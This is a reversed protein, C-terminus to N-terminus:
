EVRIGAAQIVDGWRAREAKVFADLEAPPMFRPELGADLLRRRLDPQQLARQVHDAFKQALPAPTGRPAFFADWAVFEFGPVGQDAVSRVGPLVESEKLTTIGVAKLRGSALHPRAAIVTDIVLPIQGGLVDTMSQASSKYKVGFMPAQAAKVLSAFIVSASTSPLGVNLTGPQARAQAILEAVGNSPLTPASTCVVMPLLGLMAVADFDTAANYGTNAYLYGNAANTANTGLLFTYGDAPAKAAQATGINGGAGAKNEVFVSQGLSKSLEQAVLRALVDAGQGAAYPVLIRIPRDPWPAQAVAPAALPLTATAALAILLGRRARQCPPHNM